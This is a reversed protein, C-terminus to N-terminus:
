RLALGSDGDSDSDNDSVNDSDNDSDCEEKTIIKNSQQPWEITNQIGGSRQEDHDMQDVLCELIPNENVIVYSMVDPLTQSIVFGQRTAADVILATTDSPVKERTSFDMITSCDHGPKLFNQIAWQQDLVPNYCIKIVNALTRTTVESVGGTLDFINAFEIGSIYQKSVLLDGKPDSMWETIKEPPDSCSLTYTKTNFRGISHLAALVDLVVLKHQCDPDDKIMERMLNNAFTPRDDVIIMVSTDETVVEFAKKFLQGLLEIKTHGIATVSGDAMNSPLTSDLLFRENLALQSVGGRREVANKLDKTVSLPSRLPKDMKAVQFGPPFLRKLFEELKEKDDVETPLRKNGDYYNCMAIWVTTKDKIFNRVEAKTEEQFSDFDQFFEDM